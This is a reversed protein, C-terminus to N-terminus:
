KGRRRNSKKAKPKRVCKSKKKVYGKKCKAPRTAKPTATPAPTSGTLPPNGGAQFQSGPSLLVPAAGLAGQCADGSCEASAAPSPFGGNIRADYIDGNTDTDQGVLQETSIFFVDAGSADTSIISSGNATNGQISSSRGPKAILYVHGAHYEYANPGTCYRAEGCSEPTLAAQSSFFVYSGNASVSMHSWYNRPDGVFQGGHYFNDPSVISAPFASTNGNDNFGNQGISVRVLSGTQADYEFIQEVSSTDDPTLDTVSTFVLFRGGPTTDAGGPIGGASANNNERSWLQVDASSLTAIFATRGAPYQADREFLYLNLAGQRASQGLGNPTATLVDSAVFYVHSGDESVQVPDGAVGGSIRIVRQGAAANFDYEYLIESGDGVGLLPQTTSFFVKSGDASAGEFIAGALQGASILKKNEYCALCDEETPESIAVTHADAL